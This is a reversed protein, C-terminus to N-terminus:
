PSRAPGSTPGTRRDGLPRPPARRSSTILALVGRAAGGATAPRLAWRRASGLTSRDVLLGAALLIGLATYGPARYWIVPFLAAIYGGVVLALQTPRVLRGSPWTVIAHVLFAVHLQVVYGAAWGIPSRGVPGTPAALTGIFWALGAAVLLPGVRSDRAGAWVAIGCAAITWGAALDIWGGVLPPGGAVLWEVLLGLLVFGLGVPLVLVAM